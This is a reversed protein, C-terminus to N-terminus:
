WLHRRLLGGFVHTVGGAIEKGEKAAGLMLEVLAEGIEGGCGCWRETGVCSGDEVLGGRAQVVVVGVGVWEISALHELWRV